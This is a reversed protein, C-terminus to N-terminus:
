IIKFICILFLVYIREANIKHSKETDIQDFDLSMRFITSSVIKSATEFEQKSIFGDKDKDLDNFLNNAFVDCNLESDDESSMLNFFENFVYNLIVNFPAM